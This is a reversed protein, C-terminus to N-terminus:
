TTHCARDPEQIQLRYQAAKLLAQACMNGWSAADKMLHNAKHACTFSDRAIFCSKGDELGFREALAPSCVLPVGQRMLFPLVMAAEPNAFPLLAVRYQMAGSKRAKGMIKLTPSRLAAQLSRSGTGYLCVTHAPVRRAMAPVVKALCKLTNEAAHRDTFDGLFYIDARVHFMFPYRVFAELTKKHRFCRQFREFLSAPMVYQNRENTEVKARTVQAAQHFGLEDQVRAKELWSKKQNKVTKADSQAVATVWIGDGTVFRGRALLHVYLYYDMVYHLDKRLGGLDRVARTSMFCAPQYFPRANWNNAIHELNLGNPFVITMLSGDEYLRNCAGVWAVADPYRRYAAAVKLLAGPELYDDANLWNFIDGTAKALGKNIADSQGEDKQSIWYALFREYKKIIQLSEDTSGGDIIIYELNPYQQNLVSLICKELFRGQNYNPTVVSISPYELDLSRRRVSRPGNRLSDAANQRLVSEPTM